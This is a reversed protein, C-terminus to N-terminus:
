AAPPEDDGWATAGIQEIRLREIFRQLDALPVRTVRPSLKIHPIEGRSVMAWVTAPHVGLQEAVVDIRLLLPLGTAPVAPVAPSAQTNRIRSM